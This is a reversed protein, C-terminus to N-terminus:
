EEEGATAILQSDEENFQFGIHQLHGFLGQQGVIAAAVATAAALRVDANEQDYSWEEDNLRFMSNWNVIINLYHHKNKEADESPDVKLSDPDSDIEFRVIDRAQEILEYYHEQFLGLTRVNVLGPQDNLLRYADSMSVRAERAALGDTLLQDWMELLTRTFGLALTESAEPAEPAETTQDTM